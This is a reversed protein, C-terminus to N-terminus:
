TLAANTPLCTLEVAVVANTPPLTTLSETVYTVAATMSATNTVMVANILPQTSQKAMVANRVLLKPSITAEAANTAPNHQTNKETTM